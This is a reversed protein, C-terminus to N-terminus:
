ECKRSIETTCVRDCVCLLFCMFGEARLAGCVVAGFIVKKKQREGGGREGVGKEEYRSYIYISDIIFTVTSVM